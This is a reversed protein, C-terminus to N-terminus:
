PRIPGVRDQGFHDVGLQLGPLEVGDREDMVLGRVPRIFGSGSIALTTFFYGSTMNMTSLTLEM